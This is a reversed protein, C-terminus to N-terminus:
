SVQPPASSEADAYTSLINLLQYCAEDNPPPVMTANPESRYHHMSRLLHYASEYDTLSVAQLGNYPIPLDKVRFRGVCVPIMRKGSLWAAGAEFHIWPRAVSRRSFLLLVIEAETLEQKIRNLWVEGAHLVWNDDTFFVQYGNKRLFTALPHAICADEHVFSIFTQM